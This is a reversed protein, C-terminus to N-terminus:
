ERLGLPRDRKWTNVTARAQGQGDSSVCRGRAVSPTWGGLDLKVKPSRQERVEAWASTFPSDFRTHPHKFVRRAARCRFGTKHKLFGGGQSVSGEIQGLIQVTWTNM